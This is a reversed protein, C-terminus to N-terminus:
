GDSRRRKEFDAAITKLSATIGDQCEACIVKSPYAVPRDCGNACREYLPKWGPPATPRAM